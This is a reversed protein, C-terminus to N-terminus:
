HVTSSTNHYHHLDPYFHTQYPNLVVTNIPHTSLTYQFPTNILHSSIILQHSANIPHTSLNYRHLTYRYLNCADYLAAGGMGIASLGLLKVCQDHTEKNDAMWELRRAPVTSWALLGMVIRYIALLPGYVLGAVASLIVLPWLFTYLISYKRIQGAPALDKWAPPEKDYGKFTWPFLWGQYMVGM